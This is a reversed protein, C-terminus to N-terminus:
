WKGTTPNINVNGLTYEFTVDNNSLGLGSVHVVVPFTGTIQNGLTITLSTTSADTVTAAVGGIRVTNDSTTASFGTGTIVVTAGAQGDTPNISTVSPTAATSFTFTMSPYTVGNSTVAISVEGAVHMSTECEITTASEMTVGCTDSDITVTSNAKFGHGTITVLTGGYTSGEAPSIASILAQSDVAHSSDAAALGKGLVHVQEALLFVLWLATLPVTSESM